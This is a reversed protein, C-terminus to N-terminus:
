RPGSTRVVAAATFDSHDPSSSMDGAAVVELVFSNADNTSAAASNLYNWLELLPLAGM